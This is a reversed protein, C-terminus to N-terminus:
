PSLIVLIDLSERILNGIFKRASKLPQQMFNVYKNVSFAIELRTITAYQLASISSRYLHIYSSPDSGNAYLELGAQVPHKAFQM